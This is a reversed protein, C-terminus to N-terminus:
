TPSPGRSDQHEYHGEESPASHSVDILLQALLAHCQQRRDLPLQPWVAHPTCPVRGQSPPLPPLSNHM